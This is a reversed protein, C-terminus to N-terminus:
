LVMKRLFYIACVAITAFFAWMYKNRQLRMNDVEVKCTTEIAQIQTKIADIQAIIPETKCEVPLSQELATTTNIASETVAESATQTRCGNLLLTFVLLITFHKM